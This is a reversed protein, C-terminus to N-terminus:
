QGERGRDTAVPLRDELDKGEGRPLAIEVEGRVDEGSRVASVCTRGSEDSVRVRYDGEQLCMSRTVADDPRHGAPPWVETRRSVLEGGRTWEFTLRARPRALPPFRVTVPIGPGVEVAIDLVAGAPLELCRHNEAVGTGRLCLDYTGPQLVFECTGGRMPEHICGGDRTCLEAFRVAHARAGLCRVRLRAPPLLSIRGVDTDAAPPLQIGRVVYSGTRPTWFALAYGGAPLPGIRFSGDGGIPYAGRPELVGERNWLVQVDGGALPRGQEDDVSGSVHSTSRLSAPVELRRMDPPRLEELTLSPHQAASTRERTWLAYVAGRVLEVRFSGEADTATRTADAADDKRVFCLEWGALPAGLDDVAVGAVEITAALVPDWDARDDEGLHMPASQAARGEHGASFTWTGPRLRPIEFRGEADTAQAPLAWPPGARLLPALDPVGSRVLAGPVPAGAPDRVTGRLTAGRGMSVDLECRGGEEIEVVTWWAAHGREGVWVPVSGPAVESCHFRGEEDTETRLVPLEGSGALSAFTGILVCAGALPKGDRGRVRGTVTAAPGGCRLTVACRDGVRDEVMVLWSPVRRPAVASLMRGPQVDRLVFKGDVGSQAVPAGLHRQDEALVAHVTAQIPSGNEDVVLGEVAVGRPIRLEVRRVPDAGLHLEQRGGLASQLLHRGPRPMAQRVIGQADALRWRAGLTGDRELAFLLVWAGTAPSGDAYVTHVVLGAAGAPVVERRAAATADDKPLGPPAAGAVIENREPAAGAPAAAGVLGPAVSAMTAAFLVVGLGAFWTRTGRGAGRGFPGDLLRGRPLPPSGPRADRLVARRMAAVGRPLLLGGALAAAFGPPLLKRLMEMGRSLQSRVTSRRRGLVAAVELSSLGHRLHLTLVQEYRLPLQGLAAVVAESLERAQAARVPDAAGGPGLREPDPRRSAARRRKRVRNALIGLLWPMLRQAADYRDKNEIAALFTAQVVDEAADGDSTLHSAVRLLEAATADFIRALAAADGTERFALFDRELVRQPEDGRDASM